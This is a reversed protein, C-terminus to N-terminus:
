LETEQTLVADYVELTASGIHIHESGKEPQAEVGMKAMARKRQRMEQREAAKGELTQRMERKHALVQAEFRNIVESMYGRVNFMKSSYNTDDDFEEESPRWIQPLPEEEFVERYAFLTM